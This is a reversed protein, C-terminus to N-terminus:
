RWDPLSANDALKRQNSGDANALWVSRGDANSEYVVESGNPSFAFQVRFNANSVLQIFSGENSGLDLAYLGYTYNPDSGVRTRFVLKTGDPSIVGSTIDAQDRDKLANTVASNIQRPLPTPGELSGTANYMLAETGRVIVWRVNQQGSPKRYPTLYWEAGNRGRKVEYADETLFFADVNTEVQYPVLAGPQRVEMRWKGSSSFVLIYDGNPLYSLFGSAVGAPLAVPCSQGGGGANATCVANSAVYLLKSGVPDFSVDFGVALNDVILSKGGGNSDLSYLHSKDGVKTVVAVRDNNPSFAGVGEQNCAALVLAISVLWLWMQWLRKMAM